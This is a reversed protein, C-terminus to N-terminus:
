PTVRTLMGSPGDGPGVTWVYKKGVTLDEAGYPGVELSRVSGESGGTSGPIVRTLTNVNSVWLADAGFVMEYPGPSGLPTVNSIRAESADIELIDGGLTAAWVSGGGAAVGSVGGPVVLRESIENAAPDMRLIQGEDREGTGQSFKPVTAWVDGSAADVALSQVAGPTEIETVVRGTRPDIRVVRGSGDGDSVAVWAAGGAAVVQSPSGGVRIRREVEGSAPDLRLVNGTEEELLWVADAGAELGSSTGPAESASLTRGTEPALKLLSIGSGERQEGRDLVWLHGGGAAIGTPSKGIPRMRVDQFAAGEPTDPPLATTEEPDSTVEEITASTTESSAESSTTEPERGPDLRWHYVARDYQNLQLFVSLRRDETGGTSPLEFVSVGGSAPSAKESFEEPSEPGTTEDPMTQPAPAVTPKKGKPIRRADLTRMDPPVGPETYVGPVPPDSTEGEWRKTGAALGSIRNSGVVVFTDDEDSVRTAALDDGMQEPTEMGTCDDLKCFEGYSAQVIRGGSVLWVPPPAWDEATIGPVPKPAPLEIRGAKVSGPTDNGGIGGPTGSCGWLGVLCCAFCLAIAFARV